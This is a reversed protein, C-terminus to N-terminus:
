LLKLKSDKIWSNYKTPWNLWKVLHEKMSGRGRSKIVKEVKFPQDPDLAMAQLEPEYFTGTVPDHGYDKLEYIPIGERM